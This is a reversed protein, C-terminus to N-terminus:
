EHSNSFLLLFWKIMMMLVIKKTQKNELLKTLTKKNKTQNRKHTHTHTHTHRCANAHRTAGTFFLLFFLFHFLFLVFLCSLFLYSDLSEKWRRRSGRTWTFSNRKMEVHVVLYSTSRCSSFKKKTKWTLFNLIFSSFLLLILASWTTHTRLTQSKGALLFSFFNFYFCEPIIM